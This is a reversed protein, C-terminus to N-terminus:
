MVPNEWHIKGAKTLTITIVQEKRSDTCDFATLLVPENSNMMKMTICYINVRYSMDQGGNKFPDSM